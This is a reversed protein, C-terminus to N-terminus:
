RGRDGAPPAPPVCARFMGPSRVRRTVSSNRDGRSASGEAGLVNASHWKWISCSL